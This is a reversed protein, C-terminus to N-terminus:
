EVVIKEKQISCVEYRDPIGVSPDALTVGKETDKAAGTPPTTEAGSRSPLSVGGRDSEPAAEKGKERLPTHDRSALLCGTVESRESL